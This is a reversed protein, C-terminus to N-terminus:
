CGLYVKHMRRVLFVVVKTSVALSLVHYVVGKCDSPSVRFICGRLRSGIQEGRSYSLREVSLYSM